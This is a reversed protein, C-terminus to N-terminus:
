FEKMIDLLMILPPKEQQKNSTSGACGGAACDLTGCPICSPPLQNPCSHHDQKRAAAQEERSFVSNHRQHWRWLRAKQLYGCDRNCGQDQDWVARDKLDCDLSKQLAKDIIPALNFEILAVCKRQSKYKKMM